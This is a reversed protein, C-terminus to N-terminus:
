TIRPVRRAFAPGLAELHAAHDRAERIIQVTTLHEVSFLRAEILYWRCLILDSPNIVDVLCTSATHGEEIARIASKPDTESEPELIAISRIDYFFGDQDHASWYDRFYSRAAPLNEFAKYDVQDSEFSVRVVYMVSEM